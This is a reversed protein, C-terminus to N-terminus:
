RDKVNRSEGWPRYDQHSIEPHTKAAKRNGDTKQHNFGVAVREPTDNSKESEQNGEISGRKDRNCPHIHSLHSILPGEPPRQNKIPAHASPRNDDKHGYSRCKPKGSNEEDESNYRHNAEHDINNPHYFCFRCDSFV